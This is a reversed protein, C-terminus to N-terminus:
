KPNKEYKVICNQPKNHFEKAAVDVVYLVRNKQTQIEYTKNRTRYVLDIIIPLSGSMAIKELNGATAINVLNQFGKCDLTNMVKAQTQKQQSIAEGSTM